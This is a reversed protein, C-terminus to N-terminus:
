LIEVTRGNDVEAYGEVIVKDGSTLGDLIEANGNSIKGTKVLVAKAKNNEVIFVMEGEATNQIAAIPIILANANKYSLIKMKCSMNPVIDKNNGIWVQIKFARSIENVSRSVYSLKSNIITGTETFSLIVPDGTKVKGIYNEGLTTEVKLKSMSVVRIGAPPAGPSGIVSGVKVDIADVTGNIPSIIRSMNRQAILADYQKQNSEYTAKATLLQVESGVNQKWLTAQKEYLQKSLTLMADQAKIQQEVAAAALTALVQGKKVHQGARVHIRTITGPAQSTALINEDGSAAAQVEIYSNFETPTLSIVSVPVADAPKDKLAQTELDAIQKDLEIREKKLKALKEAPTGSNDDGCSALALTAALIIISRKM